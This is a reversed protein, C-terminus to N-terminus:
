SINDFLNEQAHRWVKCSERHKKRKVEKSDGKFDDEQGRVYINELIVVKITIEEDKRGNYM